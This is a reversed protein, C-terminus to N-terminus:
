LVKRSPFNFEGMLFFELFGFNGELFHKLEVPCVALGVDEGTILKLVLVALVVSSVGGDLERGDIAKIEGFFNLQVWADSVDDDVLRLVQVELLLRHLRQLVDVIKDAHHRFSVNRLQERLRVDRRVRLDHQGVGRVEFARPGGLEICFVCFAFNEVGRGALHAEDLHHALVTREVVTLLKKRNM